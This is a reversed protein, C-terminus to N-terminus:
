HWADLVSRYRSQTEVQISLGVAKSSTDVHVTHSLFVTADVRSVSESRSLLVYCMVCDGGRDDHDWMISRANLAVRIFSDTQM